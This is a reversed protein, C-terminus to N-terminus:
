NLSLFCACGGRNGGGAGVHRSYRAIQAESKVAAARFRKLGPLWLRSPRLSPVRRPHTGVSSSLSVSVANFRGSLFIVLSLACSLPVLPHRRSLVSLCSSDSAYISRSLFPSPPRSHVTSKYGSSSPGSCPSSSSFSPFVLPVERLPSSAVGGGGRRQAPVSKGNFGDRVGQRVGPPQPKLPHFV